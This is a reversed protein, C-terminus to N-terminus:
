GHTTDGGEHSTVTGGEGDITLQRADNSVTHGSHGGSGCAGRRCRHHGHCRYRHAHPLLPIPEPRREEEGLMGPQGENPRV